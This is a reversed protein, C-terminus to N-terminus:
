AAVGTERQRKFKWRFFAWGPKYGRRKALAQFDDLTKCDREERLEERRAAMLVAPDAEILEGAVQTLGQGGSSIYEFGCAPCKRAPEHFYYCEPCQKGKVEDKQQRKAKDDGELTWVRDEDPLGHRYANMVHDLIIAHEKGPYPRLARGIQQLYLSLSATPRLLIAAAVVPIDTGESIIECSTLVNLTGNGLDRIRARRDTDHLTGDISAASFGARRFEEAVSEAHEVTSCFAITPAGQVYNRYHAVACGLIHPKNLLGAAQKAEFEGRSKKMDSLDAGVPATFVRPKSLYGGQILDKVSPGHVMSDFFGGAARGLGKGDLRVPTATVGLIRSNRYHSFIKTWTSAQAHHAEDSIILDPEPIIGLRKVLTQVSAVQVTALPDHDCGPAIIGHQVGIEDLSDSSQRLLEARHVLILVRKNRAAAGETIYSFVVTKGGGTPLQYLVNHGKPKFQERIQDVGQQQYPRLSYKM